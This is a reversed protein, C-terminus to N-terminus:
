QTHNNSQKVKKQFMYKNTLWVQKATRNALKFKRPQHLKNPINKIQIELTTQLNTQYTKTAIKQIDTTVKTSM